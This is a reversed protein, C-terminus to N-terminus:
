MVAHWVDIGTTAKKLVWRKADVYMEAIRMAEKLNTVNPMKIYAKENLTLQWMGFNHNYFVKASTIRNTDLDLPIYNVQEVFAVVANRLNEMSRSILTYGSKGWCCSFTTGDKKIVTLVKDEGKQVTIYDYDSSLWPHQAVDLNNKINVKIIVQDATNKVFELVAM